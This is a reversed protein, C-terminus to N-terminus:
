SRHAILLKKEWQGSVLHGTLSRAELRWHACMHGWWKFHLNYTEYIYAQPLHILFHYHTTTYFFLFLLMDKNYNALGFDGTWDWFLCIKMSKTISMSKKSRESSFCVIVRSNDPWKESIARSIWSIILVWWVSPFLLVYRQICHSGM